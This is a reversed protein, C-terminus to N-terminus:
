VDFGMSKQIEMRQKKSTLKELVLLAVNIATAPNWSTIINGDVVIPEKKIKVGFEKLQNIRKENNQHYTTGYKDKLIGSKGIPLAGVCISAILKNHKDFNRIIEAFVESYADEYFGSEQFGGPIALVDFDQVNIEQALYDVVLKQGFSTSVEKTIGCTKLCTNKDGELQNWGIVDIFVSAEYIEFGNALLLLVQKM